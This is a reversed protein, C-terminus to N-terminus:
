ERGLLEAFELPVRDLYAAVITDADVLAMALPAAYGPPIFGGCDVLERIVEAVAEPYGRQADPLESILRVASMDFDLASWLRARSFFASLPSCNTGEGFSVLEPYADLSGQYYTDRMGSALDPNSMEALPVYRAFLEFDNLNLDDIDTPYMFRVRWLESRGVERRARAKRSNVIAKRDVNTESM